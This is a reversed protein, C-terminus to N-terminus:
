KLNQFRATSVKEDELCNLMAIGWSRVAENPVLNSLLTIDSTYAQIGSFKVWAMSLEPSRSGSYFMKGLKLVNKSVDLLGQNDYSDLRGSLFELGMTRVSTASLSTVVNSYFQYLVADYDKGMHFTWIFQFTKLAVLAATENKSIVHRLVDASEIIQGNIRFLYLARRVILQFSLDNTWQWSKVASRAEASLVLPFTTLVKNSFPRPEDQGNKTSRKVSPPYKSALITDATNSMTKLLISEIIVNGAELYASVVSPSDDSSIPASFHTSFLDCLEDIFDEGNNTSPYHKRYVKFIGAESSQISGSQRSIINAITLLVGHTRNASRGGLRKLQLIIYKWEQAPSLACLTRAALDRVHWSKSDLHRQIQDYVYQLDDKPTGARRIIDLVPITKEVTSFIKSSEEQNKSSSELLSMLVSWVKPYRDFSVKTGHGGWGHEIQDRTETGLLFDTLTQFLLLGCNKIPWRSLSIQDAFLEAL